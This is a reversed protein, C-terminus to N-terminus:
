RRSIAGFPLWPGAKARAARRLGVWRWVLRDNACTMTLAPKAAGNTRDSTGSLTTVAELVASWFLRAAPKKAKEAEGMQGAAFLAAGAGFEAFLLEAEDQVIRKM